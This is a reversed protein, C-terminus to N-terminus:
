DINYFISVSYASTGQGSVRTDIINEKSFHDGCVRSRKGLTIGVAKEWKEHAVNKMSFRSKSIGSCNRICCKDIRSM